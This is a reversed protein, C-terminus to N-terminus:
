KYKEVMTQLQKKNLNGVHKEVEKGDKFFLLTPINRINYKSVLEDSEDINIKVIKMDLTPSMEELLVGVQRCPACWSASFDVLVVGDSQLVVTDFDSELIEKM